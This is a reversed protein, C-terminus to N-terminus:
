DLPFPFTYQECQAVNPRAWDLRAPLGSDSLLPAKRGLPASVPLWGIRRRGDVLHPQSHDILLVLTPTSKTAAFFLPEASVPKGRRCHEPPPAQGHHCPGTTSLPLQGATSFCPARASTAATAAPGSPRQGRHSRRPPPLLHHRRPCPLGERHGTDNWKGHSLAVRETLAGDVTASHHVVVAAPMSRLPATQRHSLM